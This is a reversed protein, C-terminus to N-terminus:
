VQCDLITYKSPTLHPKHNLPYVQRTEDLMNDEERGEFTEFGDETGNGLRGYDVATEREEEPEGDDYSYLELRKVSTLAVLTSGCVCLM